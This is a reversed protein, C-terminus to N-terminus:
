AVRGGATVWWGLDHPWTATGVITIVLPSLSFAVQAGRRRSAKHFGDGGPQSGHALGAAPKGFRLEKVESPDHCAVM